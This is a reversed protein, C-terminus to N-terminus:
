GVLPRPQPHPPPNRTLLLITQVNTTLIVTMVSHSIDDQARRLRGAHKRAKCLLCATATEQCSAVLELARQLSAELDELAGRMAPEDNLAAASEAPLLSLLASVRVARVRIEGCLERNQTVTGAADKITLALKVIRGVTGVPDMSGEVSYDVLLVYV